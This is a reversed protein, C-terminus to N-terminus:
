LNQYIDLMLNKDYQPSDLQTLHSTVISDVSEFNVEGQFEQAHEEEGVRPILSLERLSFEPIFQEKIFTAEEYSIDIDLEVRCYMNKVLTKEPSDLIESLMYRRYKPADPWAIYEPDKGWELIMVGRDDDGVDAYNHPFANGIYTINKHTQRKHFHGTFV